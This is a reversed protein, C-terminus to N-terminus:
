FYVGLRDVIEGLSELNGNEDLLMIDGFKKSKDINQIGVTTYIHVIPYGETGPTNEAKVAVVQSATVADVDPYGNRFLITRGVLFSLKSAVERTDIEIKSETNM